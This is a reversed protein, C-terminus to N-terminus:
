RNIADVIRTQMPHDSYVITQDLVIKHFRDKLLYRIIAGVFRTEKPHDSYVTKHFNDIFNVHKDPPWM